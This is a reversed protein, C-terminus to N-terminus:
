PIYPYEPLINNNLRNNKDLFTAAGWALPLGTALTRGPNRFVGDGTFEVGRAIGRAVPRSLNGLNRMYKGGAKLRRYGWRGARGLMRFTANNLTDALSAEKLMAETCCIM